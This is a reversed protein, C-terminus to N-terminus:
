QESSLLVRALRWTTVFFLATINAEHALCWPCWAGLIAGQVYVLYMSYIFGFLVVGFLLIVGNERLFAIRGELLLMGGMFLYSLLGLYAVPFGFLKAYKSGQVLDCNFSGGELCILSKRFMETYSLYASIGIGIAVLALSVVIWLRERRLGLVKEATM